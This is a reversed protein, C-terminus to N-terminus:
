KCEKEKSKRRNKKYNMVEEYVKMTAYCGLFYKVSEWDAGIRKFTRLWQVHIWIDVRFVNEKFRM